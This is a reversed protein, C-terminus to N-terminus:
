GRQRKFMFGYDCTLPMPTLQGAESVSSIRIPSADGQPKALRWASLNTAARERTRPSSFIQGVIGPTGAPTIVGVTKRVYRSGPLAGAPM